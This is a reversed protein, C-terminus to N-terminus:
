GTETMQTRGFYYKHRLFRLTEPRPSMEGLRGAELAREVDYDIGRGGM